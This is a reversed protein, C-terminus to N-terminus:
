HVLNFVLAAIATPLLAYKLLMPASIGEKFFRKLISQGVPNPANAILTLGGGTVAGSVVAYKMSDGFNSVLTSLYTIAANDNFATLVIATLNLGLPELSGLLPAIWWGQLNGHIMISALFFAVLLAPKLDLRNQYFATVQYFGLYFFFGALFLVPHHANFVTWILFGIHIGIIWAPVQDEREDWKTDYLEPRQNEPLLVPLTRRFEETKIGDFKEDIAKDLGYAKHEEESLKMEALAKINEKLIGSYAEVEKSFGLRKDVIRELEEFSEELEKQSIFRKQIYKKYRYYEYPAKLAEFDKKMLLFYAGTSLVIAIIAKWGFNLFMFGTSWNWKSAVMLVPPAAFNTLVGGISVNVFLLALTVYRLKRSPNLSFFKEALLFAAITMAAPETIFSGMLPALILISLWWIELSDGLTRVIRWMVMEFLKIIPRSSAITMIVIVFLPETYHLSNIYNVFTNWDYFISIAVALAIAWIGFITEVEGLLHLISAPISNSHKEAKGDRIRQQYKEAMRHAKKIFYSSFMTHAIALFFILTAVLNFPEEKVRLELTKFYGSTSNDEYSEQAKPFTYKGEIPAEESAWVLGGLALFIICVSLLLIGRRKYM